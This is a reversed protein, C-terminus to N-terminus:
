RDGKLMGAAKKDVLWQLRGNVPRIKGAPHDSGELVEKLVAAKAEGAVMFAINSANNVLKLTMTVRWADLKRVYNGTVLRETEQLAATSPFLSLTHGDEGLGLFVLDFVPLSSGFFRRIEDEYLSAADEPPLEGKIRHVNGPPIDVKSLLARNAAGYNSGPDRPGVCREDGWFLHVRDWPVKEKFGPSALTKYLTQPTDGGSLVATFTGKEKIKEDSLERFLRAANLGLEDLDKCILVNESM